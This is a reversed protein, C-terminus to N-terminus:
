RIKMYIMISWMKKSWLRKRSSTGITEASALIHRPRLLSSLINPLIPWRETLSLAFKEYNGIYGVSHVNFKASTHFYGINESYIRVIDCLIQIQVDLEKPADAKLGRQQASRLSDSYLLHEGWRYVYETMRQVSLNTRDNVVLVPVFKTYLIVPQSGNFEVRVSLQVLGFNHRFIYAKPCYDGTFLLRGESDVSQEIEYDNIYFAVKAFDANVGHIVASYLQNSYVFGQELTLDDFTRMQPPSESLELCISQKYDPILSLEYASM